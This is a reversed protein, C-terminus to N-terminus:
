RISLNDRKELDSMAIKAGAASMAMAFFGSAWVITWPFAAWGSRSAYGTSESSVLVLIQMGMGAAILPGGAVWKIKHGAWARKRGMTGIWYGYVVGLVLIGIVAAIMWVPKM